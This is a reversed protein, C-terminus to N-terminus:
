QRNRLERAPIDEAEEKTKKETEVAVKEMLAKLKRELEDIQLLFVACAKHVEKASPIYHSFM